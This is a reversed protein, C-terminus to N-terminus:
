KHENSFWVWAWTKSIVAAWVQCSTAYVLTGVIPLCLTKLISLQSFRFLINSVKFHWFYNSPSRNSFLRNLNQNLSKINIMRKYVTLNQRWLLWELPLKYCTLSKLLGCALWVTAIPTLIKYMQQTKPWRLQCILNVLAWVKNYIYTSALKRLQNTQM